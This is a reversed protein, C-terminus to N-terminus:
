GEDPLVAKAATIWRPLAEAFGQALQEPLHAPDHFTAALVERGDPKPTDCSRGCVMHVQNRAGYLPEDLVEFVRADALVCGTEERTERIAAALVAEGRGVGGGPLMWKGSGYSHRILLVRGEPDFILVRCGTLQPRRWRWWRKRMTHALRLALRHAPAPILHFM